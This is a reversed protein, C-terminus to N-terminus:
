HDIKFIKSKKFEQGFKEDNESLTYHGSELVKIAAQKMEDTVLLEHQHYRIM